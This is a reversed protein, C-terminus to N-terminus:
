SLGAAKDSHIPSVWPVNEEHGWLGGILTKTFCLWLVIVSCHLSVCPLFSQSSNKLPLCFCSGLPQTKHSLATASCVAPHSPVEATDSSLRHQSAEQWVQPNTDSLEQSLGARSSGVHCLRPMPVACPSTRLQLQLHQLLSAQAAGFAWFYCPNNFTASYGTAWGGAWCGEWRTTTNVVFYYQYSCVVSVFVCPSQIFSSQVSQIHWGQFTVAWPLMQGPVWLICFRHHACSGEHVGFFVSPSCLNFLHSLTLLSGRNTLWCANHLCDSEARVDIKCWELEHNETAGRLQCRCLHWFLFFARKWDNRWLLIQVVAPVLDM